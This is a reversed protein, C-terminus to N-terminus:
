PVPATDRVGEAEEYAEELKLLLDEVEIGMGASIDMLEEIETDGLSDGFRLM